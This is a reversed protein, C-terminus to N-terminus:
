RGARARWLGIVVALLVLVLGVIVPAGLGRASRSTSPSPTPPPGQPAPSRLRERLERMSEATLPRDGVSSPEDDIRVTATIHESSFRETPEDALELAARLPESPRLETPEPDDNAVRPPPLSPAQRVTAPAEEDHGSSRATAGPGRRRASSPPHSKGYASLASALARATPTRKEIDTALAADVIAVLEADLEPLLASIPVPGDGLLQGVVQEITEAPLIAPQGALMEYLVCGLAWLDLRPDIPEGRAQEPSMYQVTGVITGARTLVSGESFVKSIGFDVLKVLPVDDERPVLFVNAPKLDRHVVGAEHAKTLARAIQVAIAVADASPLSGRRELLSALDEGDLFEMVLYYGVEPDQGCDFVQVIHESEVRSAARAERRFRALLEPDEDHGAAILKIAVRKDLEIQRGQYVAGMAGEGVLSLVRYRGGIVRDVARAAETVGSKAGHRAGARASGAAGTATSMAALLM